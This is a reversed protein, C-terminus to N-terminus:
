ERVNGRAPRTKRVARVQTSGRLGKFVLDGLQRELVLAGGRVFPKLVGPSLLNRNYSDDQVSGGPQMLLAVTDSM